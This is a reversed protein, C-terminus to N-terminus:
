REIGRSRPRAPVQALAALHANAREALGELKGEGRVYDRAAVRLPLRTVGSGWLQDVIEGTERLLAAREKPDAPGWRDRLAKLGALIEAPDAPRGQSREDGSRLGIGKGSLGGSVDAGSRDRRQTGELGALSLATGRAPGEHALGLRRVRDHESKFYASIELRTNEDLVREIYNAAHKLQNGLVASVAPRIGPDGLKATIRNIDRETVKRLESQGLSVVQDVQRGQAALVERLARISSGTTVVDDVLVFRTDPAFADLIGPVAAFRAPDRLKRIGGKLASRTASVPTAWGQVIEGPYHEQLAKALLEPLINTDSTSPAVLYVIPGASGEQLHSFMAPNLFTRVVAQSDAVPFDDKRLVEKAAKIGVVDHTSTAFDAIRYRAM